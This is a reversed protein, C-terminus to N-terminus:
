PQWTMVHRLFRCLRNRRACLSLFSNPKLRRQTSLSPALHRKKLFIFIVNVSISIQFSVVNLNGSM